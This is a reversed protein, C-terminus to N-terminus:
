GSPEEDTAREPTVRVAADEAGLAGEDRGAERAVLDKETDPRAKTPSSWAHRPQRRTRPRGSGDREASACPTPPRTM